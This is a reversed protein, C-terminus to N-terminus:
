DDTAGDPTDVLADGIAAGALADGALGAGAVVGLVLTWFCVVAAAGLGDGMSTAGLGADAAFRM